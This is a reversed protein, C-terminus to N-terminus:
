FFNMKEQESKSSLILEDFVAVFYVYKIKISNNIPLSLTNNEIFLDPFLKHLSFILCHFMEYIDNESHPFLSFPASFYYSHCKKIKELLFSKM